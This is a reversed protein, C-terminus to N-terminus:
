LSFADQQRVRETQAADEPARAEVMAKYIRAVAERELNWLTSFGYLASVGAAIMAQTIEIKPSAESSMTKQGM